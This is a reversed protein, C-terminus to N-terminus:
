FLSSIQLSFNRKALICFATLVPNEDRVINIDVFKVVAAAYLTRFERTTAM